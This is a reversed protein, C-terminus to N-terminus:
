YEEVGQEGAQPVAKASHSREYVMCSSTGLSKTPTSSFKGGSVSFSEVTLTLGAGRPEALRGLSGLNAM